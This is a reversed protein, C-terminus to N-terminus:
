KDSKYVKKTYTPRFGLMDDIASMLDTRRRNLDMAFPVVSFDEEIEGKCMAMLKDQTHWLKMSTTILEDILVAPSKSAISVKVKGTENGTEVEEDAIEENLKEVEKEFEKSVM